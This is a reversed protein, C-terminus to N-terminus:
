TDTTTCSEMLTEAPIELGYDGLARRIVHAITGKGNRGGGHWFSLIHERCSGTMGYGALRRIYARVDQDPQVRELVSLFLPCEGAPTAATIKTHLQKPDHPSTQGTRLDLVGGPTNLLWPDADLQSVAVAHRPDSGALRVIAYITQASGLRNRLARGQAETLEPDTIHEALVERCLARALDWTRRREDHAWRQGDWMLWRDWAPVYRLQQAHRETFRLALADDSVGAPLVTELPEVPQEADAAPKAQELLREITARFADLDRARLECPDKALPGCTWYRIRESLRSRGLKARFTEGGADPEIHVYITACHELAPAFRKENWADAGPVGIANFGADWLALADTEGEVIIVNEAHLRWLGFLQQKNGRRFWFRLDKSGKEVSGRYRTCIVARDAGRYEMRVVPRGNIADDAFGSERLLSEPLGKAAALEAVTLGGAARSEPWLGRERLAGIVAAQSCGAHCNVLPRGDTGESISLSPTSDEHAVCRAVWGHGNARAGLAEAIQAAASM